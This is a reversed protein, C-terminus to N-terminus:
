LMQKRKAAVGSLKGTREYEGPEEQEMAEACTVKLGSMNPVIKMM